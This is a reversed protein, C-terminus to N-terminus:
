PTQKTPPPGSSASPSAPVLRGPWRLQRNRSPTSPHRAQGRPTTWEKEWALSSSEPFLPAMRNEMRWTSKMVLSPAVVGKWPKKRTVVEESALTNVPLMSYSHAAGPHPPPLPTGLCHTGWGPPHLYTGSSELKPVLVSSHEDTKLLSTVLRSEM